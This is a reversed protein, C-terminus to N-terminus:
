PRKQRPATRRFTQDYVVVFAAVALMVAYTLNVDATSAGDSFFAPNSILVLALFSLAFVVAAAAAGALLGKALRTKM